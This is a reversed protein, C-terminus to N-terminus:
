RALQLVKKVEARKLRRAHARLSLADNVAAIAAAEDVYSPREDMAEAFWRAVESWEWIRTKADVWAIASPFSGPGRKGEILLRVSERTRGTREAIASATVLEGPQVRVVRLGPVARQVDHIASFMADVFSGAERDFDARPIGNGIGITADDCGAEYLADLNESKTVDAGDLILTFTYTTKTNTTM